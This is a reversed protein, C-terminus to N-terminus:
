IGRDEIRVRTRRIKDEATGTLAAWRRIIVDVYKPDLEIARATRTEKECAILTSGSGGFPDLVVDGTRSSNRLARIVLGLPKQTPHVMSGGARKKIEWVDSEYKDELFYHRGGNWGYLIPTAKKKEKKAKLIMEHQKKYDQWGMAARDKVWIIPCSFTMGAKKLAYLFPPYSSYGSCVYFVGGDKTFAAMQKFFAESFKIFEDAPMADNLIGGHKEGHYDVNYPPDTFIMDAKRDELLAQYPWAATSDGCILRHNGLTFLDGLEVDSEAEPEPVKDEEAGDIDPGFATMITEPDAPRAVQIKYDTLTIKDRQSFLLEAMAQQDTEGAPDNDSLSYEVLEAANRPWVITIAIERAGIEQLALLRQNGGIVILRTERAYLGTGDQSFGHHEPDPCALLRKYLGLRLIQNKLRQLDGKRIIRPNEKWHSLQGIPAIAETGAIPGSRRQPEPMM